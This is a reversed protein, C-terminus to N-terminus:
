GAMELERLKEVFRTRRTWLNSRRVFGQITRERGVCVCLHKARSIGTLVWHRDCLRKAGGAEDIVVLVIPWQDGQSKHCSIAYSLEWSCGNNGDGDSKGRPVTVVRCPSALEATFRRAEVSLVKAQEGNAVYIKGEEDIEDPPCGDAAPLRGNSTCIIKDGVRFPSGAVTEGNPNLFGQLMKNLPKRSVESRENLACIIQVDWIPDFGHQAASELEDRITRLQADVGKADAVFLNEGEDTDIEVSAAFRNQDRILACCKVIQGANRHIETLHGQPIGAAIMDRLPAGHGVPGLQHPDGVFLMHAGPARAAMLSAALPVDIMSAEDIFIFDHPLPNSQDHMFQWGGKASTVGLMRHITSAKHTLGREALSETLRTAAKGTPAAIGIRAAQRSYQIAEIIASTVVTKGTGPSGILATLRGRFAIDVQEIQHTSLEIM